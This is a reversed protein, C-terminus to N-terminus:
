LNLELLTLQNKGKVLFSHPPIVDQLLMFFPLAQSAQEGLSQCISNIDYYRFHNGTGFGVWIQLEPFTNCLQFYISALLVVDTDV